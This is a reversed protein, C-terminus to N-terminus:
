ERSQKSIRRFTFYSLIDGAGQVIVLIGFVQFLFLASIFPNAIIVFGGTILLIAMLLLTIRQWGGAATGAFVEALRVVGGLVLLIGLFVPLISLIVKTFILLVIGTIIYLSGSIFNFSINGQQRERFHAVIRVTGMIIAAAALVYVVSQMMLAPLALMFGGFLMCLVGSILVYKAVKEFVNKM